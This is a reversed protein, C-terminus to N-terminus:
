LRKSQIYQKPTIGYHTQFIKCFYAADFFNLEDAVAAISMETTDLLYVARKLKMDTRYQVPSTGLASKFLRRLTAESTYCKKAVDGISISFDENLINQALTLLKYQPISASIKMHYLKDLLLFFMGSAYLNSYGELRAAEIIQSFQGEFSDPLGEFLKVPKEFRYSEECTDFNLLCNTVRGSETHFIAEYYCNKPLFVIDGPYACVSGGDFNFDIQGNTVLMIGYDKRPRKIYSFKEIRWLQNLANTLHLDKASNIFLFIRQSDM